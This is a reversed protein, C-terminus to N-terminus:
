PLRTAPHKFLSAFGLEPFFQLSALEIGIWSLFIVLHLVIAVKPTALNVKRVRFSQNSPTAGSRSAGFTFFRGFFFLFALLFFVLFIFLFALLFFGPFIFFFSCSFSFCNLFPVFVFSFDFFAQQLFKQCFCLFILFLFLFFFFFFFLGRSPEFFLIIKKQSILM